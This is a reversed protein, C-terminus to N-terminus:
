EPVKRVFICIEYDDFRSADEVEVTAVIAGMLGGLFSSIPLFKNPECDIVGAEQYNPLGSLGHFLEVKYQVFDSM